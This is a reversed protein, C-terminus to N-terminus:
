KTSSSAEKHRDPVMCLMGSVTETVDELKILGPHDTRHLLQVKNLISDVTEKAGAPKMTHVRGRDIAKFTITAKLRVQRM